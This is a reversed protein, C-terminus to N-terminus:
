SMEIEVLLPFHDSATTVIPPHKIIEVSKLREIYRKPLFAYDLRVHTNWVPFTHGIDNPYLHRFCDVYGSDLLTQVTERKIDRGSLWILARIWYPMKHLQFREGPALTNFDGVLVHFGEQYHKIAELLSRIERNRQRESWKSFRPKLHLGFVRSHKDGLVIELFSHTSGAPYHWKYDAIEIRSAFAISHAERGGWIKLNADAAVQEIVRPTYAEQFVVIDPAVAAIVEAIKKGRDQGGFRINYSLLKLTV